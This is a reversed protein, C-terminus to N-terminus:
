AFALNAYAEKLKKTGHDQFSVTITRDEEDGDIALITGIGLTPHRVRRGIMPNSPRRSGSPGRAPAYGAGSSSGFGSGSSSPANRRQPMSRYSSYGEVPEYRRTEGPEGLSGAVTEMLELPIERLFRSPMSARLREEGYTRRYQARSITLAKRARTMGVYCLRREEELEEPNNLTRSHPFLGEELGALFVLPFELGKAAHLTMLTVRAEPDFQDTDSALAAHDLFEALTEGRAEADHAANALEKLNEIRSFAEPSGETELAKIYGTRDILFKILEPLTAADGPARFAPKQEAEAESEPEPAPKQTPMTLFPRKPAATFPSFNSADLLPLQSHDSNGFDFSTASDASAADANPDVVTTAGFEFDTDAESEAIAAVDASLKGAFDPDMMAQADLILQRFSDLAMLARNPILHNKLAASLADWTSQNTELALRELTELTTKGIGRAPTNIVRQLAMSDHPNRVLRLYGLLDKIEAREYFSFGGVMTYRINYRRLAEEVLRSQSNTRYLVACHAHEGDDGAERLFKQIRDAIFLAENEGDPAEYYGILSGGQRDTWLKKGKRRVNNAVVAGAAELIIQTSRYNQELRVIKANPFDKEFELINRIDAGRWSYISQDEDGVACVNKAEGALLKMLEYQPRNTDQYEDVLLYRYRRQYRERVEASVKLLRVAELLLDDFDMANNKRMEARYSQYIHAIRESNPDKSALYYEQPDVMHNKAWSIRGLVTRPTLQKTDLGMRRMVQKVIAQQDNEDYIAFARTLGENGVKLAEIDRRLLRVCMSHFTAILPKALSSHGLLRDVREAMESAAKNTFTVALISDPAIGKERILWAIRSTIVRTKGSGAGALILLPGDTTEVAARQEPNLNDILPQV